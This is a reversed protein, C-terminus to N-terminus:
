NNNQLINMVKIHGEIIAKDMTEPPIFTTRHSLGLETVAERYLLYVNGGSCLYVPSDPDAGPALSRLESGILLGSLYFYNGSENLYELLRNIRVSFLTHLLSGRGSQRLGEDYANKDAECFFHGAGSASVSNGLISHHILIDFLEGTMFTSFDVVRGARVFIHKSHTGPFICTYSDASQMEPEVEALGVLQTEEGRMVDKGNSVGSILSINLHHGDLKQVVAETGNVPFPIKAYPLEKIGISSCAMGSIVIPIDGLSVPIGDALLRAHRCFWDMYFGARNIPGQGSAAQWQRYLKAMGDNSSIEKIISRSETEVLRLRFSSTGWDCSIVLRDSQYKGKNNMAQHRDTNGNQLAETKM